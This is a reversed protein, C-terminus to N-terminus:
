LYDKVEPMPPVDEPNDEIDPIRGTRKERGSIKMPQLEFMRRDNIAESCCREDRAYFRAASKAQFLRYGNSACNRGLGFRADISSLTWGDRRLIAVVLGLQKVTAQRERCQSLWPGPKLNRVVDVVQRIVTESMPRFMFAKRLIDFETM